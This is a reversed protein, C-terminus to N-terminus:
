ARAVNLFCDAAWGYGRARGIQYQPACESRGKPNCLHKGPRRLRPGANEQGKAIVFVSVAFVSFPGTATSLLDSEVRGAGKRKRRSPGTSRGMGGLPPRPIDTPSPTHENVRLIASGFRSVSNNQTFFASLTGSCSSKDLFINDSSYSQLEARQGVLSGSKEM